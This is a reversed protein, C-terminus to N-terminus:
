VTPSAMCAYLTGDDRKTVKIKYSCSGDKHHKCLFRRTKTDGRVDTLLTTGTNDGYIRIFSYLSVETKFHLRLLRSEEEEIATKMTVIGTAMKVSQGIVGLLDVLSQLPALRAEIDFSTGDFKLRPAIGSLPKHESGNRFLNYGFSLSPRHARPPDNRLFHQM